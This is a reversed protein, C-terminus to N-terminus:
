GAEEMSISAICRPAEDTLHERFLMKAGPNLGSVAGEDVASLIACVDRSYHSSLACRSVVLRDGEPGTSVTFEIGLIDYMVGAAQLLERRTEGVGLRRRADRGLAEGVPFLASRGLPIANERGMSRILAEVRRRHGQAMAARLGELRRGHADGGTVLAGPAHEELLQDLAAFTSSRIREIERAKMFRPMWWSALRLRLSM